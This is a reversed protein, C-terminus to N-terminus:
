LPLGREIRRREIVKVVTILDYFAMLLCFLLGQWGELWGGQVIYKQLFRMLPRLPWLQAALRRLKLHRRTGLAEDGAGGLFAVIRDAEYGAYRQHRRLWDDIGQSFAYHEYPAAIRGVVSGAQFSEWLEGEFQLRGRRVLRPHWNPYGQTRRLWRGLFLFRPTLEFGQPSPLGQAEAAAAAAIAQQIAMRCSAGIAEDQDLFLVWDSRLGAELLAWNRQVTFSFPGNQRHEVVRFGHALAREPSGDSSGSDVM